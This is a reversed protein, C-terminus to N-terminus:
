NQVFSFTSFDRSYVYKQIIKFHFLIPKFYSDAQLLTSIHSKEQTCSQSWHLIM